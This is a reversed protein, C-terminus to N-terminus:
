VVCLACWRLLEVMGICEKTTVMDMDDLGACGQLRDSESGLQTPMGELIQMGLKEIELEALCLGRCRSHAFAMKSAGLFCAKM